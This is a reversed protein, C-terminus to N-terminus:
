LKLDVSVFPSPNVTIEREREADVSKCLYHLYSYTHISDSMVHFIQILVQYLVGSAHVWM